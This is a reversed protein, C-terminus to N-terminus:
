GCCTLDEHNMLGVHYTHKINIIQMTQIGIVPRCESVSYTINDGVFMDAVEVSDMDGM